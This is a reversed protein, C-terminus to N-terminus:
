GFVVDGVLAREWWRDLTFCNLLVLFGAGDVRGCCRGMVGFCSLGGVWCSDDGILLGCCWIALGGGM